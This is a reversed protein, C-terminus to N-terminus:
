RTSVLLREEHPGAGDHWRLVADCYAATPIVMSATLRVESRPGITGPSPVSALRPAQGGDRAILEVTVNRAPADGSNEVVLYWRRHNKELEKVYCVTLRASNRVIASAEDRAAEIATLQEQAKAARRAWRVALGSVVLALISIVLGAAAM